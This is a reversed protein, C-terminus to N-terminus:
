RNSRSAQAALAGPRAAHSDRWQAIVDLDGALFDARCAYRQLKGSSTKHISAARVLVVAHPRLEHTDVVARLVADVAVAADDSRRPELGAIVVVGEDSGVPVSFVAVCGPRVAPHCREVTLELDHPHLKRGRVIMVEKLRGVVYLHGDEDLFGCDGTRLFTSAPHGPLRSRLSSESEDPKNWYSDAVSSGSLWIEGVTGAPCLSKSEPAVICVHTDGIARGSSVARIPERLPEDPAVTRGHEYASRDLLRERPMGGAVTVMLTAEALGYCPHFAEARFGAPAFTRAFDALTAARLPEAGNFAVQWGRLDLEARQAQPIRAVCWEYAFNPGGSHTGRYTQIARLWRVPHQMFHLPSMLVTHMGAQLTGLVNGILGMDHYLPLWGVGISEPRAQLSSQILRLNATANRHRVVVGKPLATSGSTYQLFAADDPEITADLWQPGAQDLQDSAILPLRALEPLLADFRERERALQSTCLALKPDCDRLIGLLRPLSSKLRTRDPPYAPVAVVKAYLCGFLAAIFELGAGYPYLLLARDGPELSARLEAAIRRARADLWAYDVREADSEGDRLFTFATRTPHQSARSALLTALDEAAQMKAKSM